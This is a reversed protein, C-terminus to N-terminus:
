CHWEGMAAPGGSEWKLILKFQPAFDGFSAAIVRLLSEVLATTNAVAM